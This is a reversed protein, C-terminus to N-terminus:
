NLSSWEYKVHHLLERAVPRKLLWVEVRGSVVGFGANGIYNPKLPLDPMFFESSCTTELRNFDRFCKVGFVKM